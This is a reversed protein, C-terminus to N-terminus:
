RAARFGLERPWTIGKRLTIVPDKATPTWEGILPEEPRVHILQRHRHAYKDRFPVVRDDLLIVRLRRDEPQHAVQEATVELLEGPM